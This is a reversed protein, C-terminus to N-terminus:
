LAESFKQILFEFLQEYSEVGPAGGVSTPLILYQAGTKESLKQAPKPNYYNETVILPIKERQILDILTLIHAPSPPIGPKPEIFGVVNLGAWDVFYSFSKHHTVIKKGRLPAIRKEWELIKQNLRRAFEGYRSRYDAAHAPDLQGLREAIRGAIILGNQPRLWYHPNGLPHVDGMSRDIQGQPIELIPLGESANLRGAQGLQVKGNRSQTLLVPLWGVELELGVEILLDANNVLVVYSPKPELFHPDQSGRAISKVEVQDGGVERALAALDPITTVVRIKAFAQTPFILLSVILLLIKKM